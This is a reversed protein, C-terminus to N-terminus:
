GTEAPHAPRLSFCDLHAVPNSNDGFDIFRFDFQSLPQTLRLASLQSSAKLRAASHISFFFGIEM